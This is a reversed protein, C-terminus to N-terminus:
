ISIDSTSKTESLLKTKPRTKMAPKTDDPGDVKKGDDGYWAQCHECYRSM